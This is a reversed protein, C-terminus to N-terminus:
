AFRARLRAFLEDHPVVDGAAGQALGDRISDILDLRYASRDREREASQLAGHVDPLPPAASARPPAYAPAPERATMVGNRPMQPTRAGGRQVAVRAFRLAAEIDEPLLGPHARLVDDRTDGAQLAELITDVPTGTAAVIAQGTAGDRVIDGAM